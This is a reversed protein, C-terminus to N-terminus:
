KYDFFNISKKDELMVKWMNQYFELDMEGGWLQSPKKGISEIISFGTADEVAKNMYVIRGESDTIIVQELMEGFVFNLTGCRSCKLEYCHPKVMKAVLKNCKKCRIERKLGQNQVKTSM